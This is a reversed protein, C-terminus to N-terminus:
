DSTDTLSRDANLTGSSIVHCLWVLCCIVNKGRSLMPEMNVKHSDNEKHGMVKVSSIEQSGTANCKASSTCGSGVKFGGSQFYYILSWLFLFTDGGVGTGFLDLRCSHDWDGLLTYSIFPVSTFAEAKEESLLIFMPVIVGINEGSCIHM